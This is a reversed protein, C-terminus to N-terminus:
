CSSRCLVCLLAPPVSALKKEEKSERREARGNEAGEATFLKKAKETTVVGTVPNSSLVWAM